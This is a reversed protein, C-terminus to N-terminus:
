PAAAEASVESPEQQSSQTAPSGIEELGKINSVAWHLTGSTDFFVQISKDTKLNTLNPDPKEFFFTWSSGLYRCPPPGKTVLSGSCDPKGLVAEVEAKSLGVSLTSYNLQVREQREEPAIYPFAHTAVFEDYTPKDDRLVEPQTPLCPERVCAVALACLAISVVITREPRM